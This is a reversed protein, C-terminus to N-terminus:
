KKQTEKKLIEIRKTLNSDKVKKNHAELTEIAKVLETKKENLKAM